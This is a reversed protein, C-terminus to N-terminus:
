RKFYSRNERRRKARDVRKRSRLIMVAGSVIPGYAFIYYDKIRFLGFYTGLTVALGGIVLLYGIIRLENIVKIKSRGTEHNLILTDIERIIAKIADESYNKQELEKRIATFDMGSKKKEFYFNITERNIGPM